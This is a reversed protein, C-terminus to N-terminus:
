QGVNSGVQTSHSTVRLRLAVVVSTDGVSNSLKRSQGVSVQVDISSVTTPKTLRKLLRKKAM